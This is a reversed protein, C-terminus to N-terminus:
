DKRSFYEKASVRGSGYSIGILTPFEESWFIQKTEENDIKFTLGVKAKESLRHRENDALAIYNMLIRHGPKLVYPSSIPSCEGYGQVVKDETAFIYGCILNEGNGMYNLTQSSNNIVTIQAFTMGKAEDKEYGVIEIQVGDKAHIFNENSPIGILPAPMVFSHSLNIYFSAFMAGIAFTLVGIGLFSLLRKM